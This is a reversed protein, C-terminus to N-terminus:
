LVGMAQLHDTYYRATAAADATGFEDLGCAAEVASGVMVRKPIAPSLLRIGRTEAAETLEDRWHQGARTTAEYQNVVVGGIALAPNYYRRVQEITDLLRALGNASFLASHTVIVALEAAVLANLALLDLSPPCDLWIADYGDRVTRLAETLRSERGAGGLLMEDRVAALTEGSSPVLDVGPWVGPVIVDTLQEDARDSLVDALGIQGDPVPEAALVQTLNGQPDVDVGLVKRGALAAARIQHFTTTTKGVGGKQNCTALVISM